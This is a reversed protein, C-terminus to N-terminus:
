KKRHRKPSSAKGKASSAKKRPREEEQDEDEDEDEEDEDAQRKKGGRKPKGEANSRRKVLILGIGCGLLLVIAAILLVIWLWGDSSKAPTTPLTPAPAPPAQVVAPQVPTTAKPPPQEVKPAPPTEVVPPTPAPPPKVLPAPPPTSVSATLASSDSILRKSLDPTLNARRLFLIALATNLIESEGPYGEEKKWSGDDQQNGVLIEAGWQYWDKNDLTRVDYLVAIRELAWLYYLGGSAKVGPRNDVRGTPAGIRQGLMVFAKLIVPDQEPRPGADKDIALAHGIALGLLSVCTMASSGGGGGRSYGYDWGGAGGQSTRFRKSLLTFSRETPVDHKRATWLGIIAFHTNSNDTTGNVPESNRKEPDTEPMKAGEQFVPLRRVGVALSKLAAEKAKELDTDAKGPPKPRIDDSMKICLGLPSPRERFNVTVTPQAPTMARLVALIKTTDEKQPIPVKYAWGGTPTQGVILRVALQQIRDRDKPDGMRDLFLIALSVEYTSDLLPTATRVVYAAAKLQPDDKPIGCELLALGVLAAHGVLWGGEAGVKKGDGPGWSGTAPNHNKRLYSIGHNIAEEVLQPTMPIPQGGQGGAGPQGPIPNGGNPNPPAAGPIPPPQPGAGPQGPMPVGLGPAMPNLAAPPKAPVGPAGPVQGGGPPVPKPPMGGPQGPGPQPNPPAIPVPPQGVVWGGVPFLLLTVLFPLGRQLWWKGAAVPSCSDDVVRGPSM